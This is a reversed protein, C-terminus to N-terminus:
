DIGIAVKELHLEVLIQVAAGPIPKRDVMASRAFAAGDAEQLLLPARGVALNDGKAVLDVVKRHQAGCVPGYGGRISDVFQLGARVFHDAVVRVVGHRFVDM